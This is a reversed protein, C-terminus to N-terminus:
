FNQNLTIDTPVVEKMMVPSVYAEFASSVLMVVAMGTVLLSFSVFHPYIAGRHHILRNKILTISFRIGAMTIIIMSPIILLNQPVISVFAFWLGQWSLKSFLFGVTFGIVLGKLFLLVLLVPIGIVSLGLIWMLGITKLHDGLSHQFAVGPEAITEDKLGQFFYGLYHLLGEKQSPDLSNVLVAGFIVGMMFLTTVFIYLSKQSQFHSRLTHEFPGPRRKM